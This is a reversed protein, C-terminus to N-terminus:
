GGRAPRRRPHTHQPRHALRHRWLRPDGAAHDWALVAVAVPPHRAAGLVLRTANEARAFSLLTPTHSIMWWRSGPAVPWSPTSTQRRLRRARIHSRPRPFLRLTLAPEM